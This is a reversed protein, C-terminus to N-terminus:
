EGPMADKSPWVFALAALEEVTKCAMIAAENANSALRIAARDTLTEDDCPKVGEAARVIKWDTASLMSGAIAKIQAVANAKLGDLDKPTATYTGDGNDTVWYFRDDPRPQEAVETIGIAEKEELTSLRLWNAPYKIGGTEFPVDLPLPKGDLLFM